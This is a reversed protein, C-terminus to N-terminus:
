ESAAKYCRRKPVERSGERAGGNQCFRSFPGQASPCGRGHGVFFACGAHRWTRPRPEEREARSILVTQKTGRPSPRTVRFPPRLRLVPCRPAGRPSGVAGGPRGAAVLPARAARTQRLAPWRGPAPCGPTARWAARSVMASRLPAMGKQSCTSEALDSSAGARALREPFRARSRSAASLKPWRWMSM